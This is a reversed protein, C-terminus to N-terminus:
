VTARSSRIYLEGRLTGYLEEIMTRDNGQISDIRSSIEELKEVIRFGRVTNVLKENPEDDVCYFNRLNSLHIILNKADEFQPLIEVYTRIILGNEYTLLNTKISSKNFFLILLISSITIRMGERSDKLLSAWAAKAKLTLLPGQIEPSTLTVLHSLAIAASDRMDQKASALNAVLKDFCLEKVVAALDVESLKKVEQVREVIKAAAHSGITTPVAAWTENKLTVKM